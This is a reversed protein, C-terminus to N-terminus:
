KNFYNDMQNKLESHNVRIQVKTMYSKGEAIRYFGLLKETLVYKKYPGDDKFFAEFYPLNSEEINPKSLIAIKFCKSNGGKLGNFLIDRVANKQAMQIAEIKSIGSGFAVIRIDGTMLNELCQTEAKFNSPLVGKVKCSTIFVFFVLIVSYIFERMMILNFDM